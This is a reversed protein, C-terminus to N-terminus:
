SSWNFLLHVFFIAEYQELIHTGALCAVVTIPTCVTALATGLGSGEMVKGISGLFSMIQHFGGLRVFIRMKISSVIEFAKVYLQQNFVVCLMDVHLIKCQETVILPLSCSSFAWHCTFRNNAASIYTIGWPNSHWNSLEYIRVLKSVNKFLHNTNWFVDTLCM